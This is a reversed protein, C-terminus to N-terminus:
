YTWYWWGTFSYTVGARRKLRLANAAAAQLTMACVPGATVVALLPQKGMAFACYWAAMSPRTAAERTEAATLLVDVQGFRAGPRVDLAQAPTAASVGLLGALLVAVVLVSIKRM